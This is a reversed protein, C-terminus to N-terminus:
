RTDGTHQYRCAEVRGLSKRRDSHALHPAEGEKRKLAYYLQLECTHDQATREETETETETANRRMPQTCCSRSQGKKREKEGEDVMDMYEPTVLALFLSSSDIAKMMAKNIGTKRKMDVWVLLGMRRLYVCIAEIYPNTLATPYHSIFVDCREQLGVSIPTISDIADRL